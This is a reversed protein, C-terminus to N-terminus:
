FIAGKMRNEDSKSANWLFKFVEFHGETAAEQLPTVEKGPGSPNTDGINSFRM